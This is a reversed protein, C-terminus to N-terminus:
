VDNRVAHPFYGFACGLDLMRPADSNPLYAQLLRCYFDLKRRPNQQAYNRYSSRFYSEDFQTAM